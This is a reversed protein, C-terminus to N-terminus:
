YISIADLSVEFIVLSKDRNIAFASLQHRDVVLLSEWFLRIELRAIGDLDM